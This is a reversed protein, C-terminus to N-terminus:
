MCRRGFSVCNCKNLQTMVVSQEVFAELEISNNLCFEKIVVHNFLSYIENNLLRFVEDIRNSVVSDSVIPKFFLYVLKSKKGMNQSKIGLLHCIFQRYDFMEIDLGLDISFDGSGDKDKIFKSFAVDKLFVNRYSSSFVRNHKGFIEHCKAEVYISCEGSEIYADLQPAGIRSNFIRCEKEFEVDDKTFVVGDLLCDTGDRLALYCFRSSSAVSAMKPPMKKGSKEKIVLEGGVGGRNSKADPNGNYKVFHKPYVRQMEDVFGAFSLNSFYESYGRNDIVYGLTYGFGCKVINDSIIKDFEAQTMIKSM